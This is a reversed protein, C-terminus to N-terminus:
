LNDRGAVRGLPYPPLEQEVYALPTHRHTLGRLPFQVLRQVQVEIHVVVTSTLQLTLVLTERLYVAM